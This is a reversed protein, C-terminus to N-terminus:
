RGGSRLPECENERDCISGDDCDSTSICEVCFGDPHCLKDEGRCMSDDACPLPTEDDDRDVDSGGARQRAPLDARPGNCSTAALLLFTFGLALRSRAM